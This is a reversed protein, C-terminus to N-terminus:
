AKAGGIGPHARKLAEKSGLWVVRTRSGLADEFDAQEVADGNVRLFGGHPGSHEGFPHGSARPQRGPELASCGSPVKDRPWTVRPASAGPDARGAPGGRDQSRGFWSHLFASRGRPTKRREPKANEWGYARHLQESMPQAPFAAALEATLERWREVFRRQERRQKRPVDASHWREFPALDDPIEPWGKPVPPASSATPAPCPLSAVADPSSTEESEQKQSQSEPTVHGNRSARPRRTERGNRFRKVRVRTTKREAAEIALDREVRRCTVTVEGASEDIEFDGVNERRLERLIAVVREVSAQKCYRAMWELSKTITGSSMERMACVIRFWAGEAEISVGALASDSIWERSYCKWWPLKGAM